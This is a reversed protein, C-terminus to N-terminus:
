VTLRQEVLRRVKEGDVRKEKLRGMVMGMVKGFNTVGEMGKITEKIIQLIEDDSMSEPLYCELIELEAQEQDALDERHGRYAVVSEKRKKVEKEIVGVVEVESLDEGKDFRKYAIASKLLRLVSVKLADRNRMATKLDEDIREGLGM